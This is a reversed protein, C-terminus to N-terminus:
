MSMMMELFYYPKRWWDLVGTILLVRVKVSVYLFLSLSFHLLNQTVDWKVWETSHIRYVSLIIIIGDGKWLLDVNEMVDTLLVCWLLKKQQQHHYNNLETCPVAQVRSGSLFRIPKPCWLSIFHPFPYLSWISFWMWTIYCTHLSCLLNFGQCCCPLMIAPSFFFLIANMRIPPSLSLPSHLIFFLRSVPKQTSMIRPFFDDGDRCSITCCRLVSVICIPLKGSQSGTLNPIALPINTRQNHFFHNM